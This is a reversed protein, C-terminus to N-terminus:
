GQKAKPTPTAALGLVNKAHVSLRLNDGDQVVLYGWGHGVLAVIIGTRDKNAPDSDPQLPRLKSSYWMREGVIFM